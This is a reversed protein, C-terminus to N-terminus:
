QCREKIQRALDNQGGCQQCLGDTLIVQEFKGNYRGFENGQIIGDSYRFVTGDDIMYTGEYKAQGVAIVEREPANCKDCNM